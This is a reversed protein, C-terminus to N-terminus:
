QEASASPSPDASSSASPSASPTPEPKKELLNEVKRTEKLGDIWDQFTLSLQEELYIKRVDDKAEDYTPGVAEEIDTVLIVHYGFESQVPDSIEGKALSFAVDSFAPIMESRQFFDLDGGLEKSGPDVSKEKALTAFDKGSKLDALVAKAEDETDLLIHSARVRKPSTAFSDENEVFYNQLVDESIDNQKKYIERYLLNPRMNDKLMDVTMGYQALAANFQEEGGMSDAIEKLQEDYDANTLSVGLNEAELDILKSRILGDLIQAPADEGIQKVIEDYLEVKTIAAGDMKAVIEDMGSASQSRVLVFVFAAIAAISILIWPWAPMSMKSTTEAAKPAEAETSQVTPAYEQSADSVEGSITEDMSKNNVDPTENGPEDKKDWESM